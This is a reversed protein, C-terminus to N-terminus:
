DRGEPGEERLQHTLKGILFSTRQAPVFATRQPQAPRARMRALGFVVLALHAASILGFMSGPGAYTILGSAVVPSAIAGVAYLFMQAASLEVRQESAAFDHAHASSVSYIPMTTLGFLAAAAMVAEPGIRAAVMTTGCAAMAGLSLWILVWRRDFRDALWGVPMQALWGGGVYIALFFALEHTSLGVAVGYLPGVMRFASSTVGAVMVGVSGLPSCEWALRPRLRPASPMGPQEARTVTVPLLALCCFLALLNYSLYAAPPLFGILTQAILSGGSDVMRYIGMTRGRTENTLRANLWAELVTFCGAICLGSLVRMGAWAYPSIIMMHLLMGITGAAAFAAYARSHGVAGMLRPAWWCGIFFGMFHASGLFGIQANTFDLQLGSIADLPAVGGSGLQLLVDSLFLAAFTLILRM